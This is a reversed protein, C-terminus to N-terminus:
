AVVLVDIGQDHLPGDILAAARTGLSRVVGDLKADDVDSLLVHAEPDATLLQRAARAGVAGAGLIGIRAGM